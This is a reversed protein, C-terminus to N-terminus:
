GMRPHCACWRGDGKVQDRIGVDELAEILDRQRVMTTTLLSSVAVIDAKEERATQVLTTIKVDVGLDIVEFGSVSMMVGVLTKGIDHIDGEITGLIVKGLTRRSTGQKEMEAELLSMASKMAEGAMVLEPLFILGEGFRDGIYDIGVVYGQEIAQM